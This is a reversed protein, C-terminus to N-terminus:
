DTEDWVFGGTWDLITTTWQGYQGSAPQAANTSTTRHARCTTCCAVIRISLLKSETAGNKMEICKEPPGRYRLCNCKCHLLRFSEKQM